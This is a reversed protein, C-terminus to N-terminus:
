VSPSPPAPHQPGLRAEVPPGHRGQGRRRYYHRHIWDPSVGFKYLWIVCFIELSARLSGYAEHRRASSLLPPDIVVVRGSARLRKSFEMDEMMPIPAYGGMVRFHDRRVFISQDGWLTSTGRQNIRRVLPVLWQRRRHMPHFRRHFAGGVIAPDTMARHLADVHAQAIETDAHQFLLVDGRAVAAAANMQKGRSPEACSVVAASGALAVARCEPGDSADGVIIELIGTIASLARLVAALQEADNWIPIIVSVSPLSPLPTPEQIM